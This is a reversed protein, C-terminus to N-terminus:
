RAIAVRGDFSEVVMMILWWLIYGDARLFRGQRAPHSYCYLVTSRTNVADIRLGDSVTLQM